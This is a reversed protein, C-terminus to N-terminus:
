VIWLVLVTIIGTTYFDSCHYINGDPINLGTIYYLLGACYCIFVLVTINTMIIYTRHYVLDPVILPILGLEHVVVVTAFLDLIATYLVLLITYM